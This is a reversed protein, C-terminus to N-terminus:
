TEGAGWFEVGRLASRESDVVLAGRADYFVREAGADLAAATAGVPVGAAALSVAM